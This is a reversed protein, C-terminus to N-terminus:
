KVESTTNTYIGQATASPIAVKIHIECSDGAAISIGPYDYKITGNGSVMGGCTNSVGGEFTAGSLMADLDDTFGLSDIPRLPDLNTLTFKLIATDGPAIFDQTFEKKLGILSSQVELVDTAPDISGQDTSLLSTANAYSGDATGPPVIVDVEIVCSDGFAVSGGSYSLITTGSLSGGCTNMSPAGGTAALDTIVDALNDSFSLIEANESPHVNEITFRLTSTDGAIVPNNLFEKSFKLGSIDLDDSAAPSNTSTGGVTASVESTTNTYSGPSAGVPVNLTISFTCDDGPALSGGALTLFSDGLSGTLTSGAGCPPDPSTPLNATLGALAAALDNTLSIATADGPNNASNSLTFELTVTGGPAVQDDTFAMSLQPAAIISLDDTAPKGTRTAGDVTATIEETTSTYNGAPMEAPVLITVEFTCSSSAGPAATLKGGTLGLAWRDEGLLVLAVLALSSGVGCPPNPIPPLSVNLPSPLFGTGIGVNTLEDLFAIDTAGSTISTNSITYRVVVSDGPNVVPDPALTGVELFEMTLIPIPEVYLDDSAMNGVVPSGDVTGTVTGTTNTYAGPTASAPISLWVKCTCSGEAAITGGSLEMFQTGMGSISGGCDNSAVSSFLLGPLLPSLKTLSDMFAVGTAEFNRDFNLLKFELLVSDGPPTPDDLFSKEISIPSVTVELTASAKGAGGGNNVLLDGTINNLMGAGIAEVDVTVTCSDGLSLVENGSGLTGNADLTIYNSGAIATITTSAYTSTCDTSANAPNAIVMGIPLNDTFDLNGLNYGNLTNDITFTLTSKGGLPISSPSFSKSFGPLTLEVSFDASATGSNGADSTLVGSTNTSTGPTSSTVNVSIQCVSSSGIGGDKFMILSSGESATLVGLQGCTSSANVPSAITMGVPLTNSFELNEILSDTENTITYTLTSVSGPGITEPSFALSFSLPSEPPIAFDSDSEGAPIVSIDAFATFTAAIESDGSANTSSLLLFLGLFFTIRKSNFSTM